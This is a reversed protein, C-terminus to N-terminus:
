VARHMINQICAYGNSPFTSPPQARSNGLKKHGTFHSRASLRTGNLTVEGRLTYARMWFMICPATYIMPAYITIGPTYGGSSPICKQVQTFLEDQQASLPHRRAPRSDIGQSSNLVVLRCRWVRFMFSQRVRWWLFNFPSPWSILLKILDSFNSYMRFHNKFNYSAKEFLFILISRISEEKFISKDKIGFVVDFNRDLCNKVAM